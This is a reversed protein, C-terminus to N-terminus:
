RTRRIMLKHTSKENGHFITVFYLGEALHAIDLRNNKIVVPQQQGTLDFLQVDGGTLSSNSNIYLYNGAPNPYIFLQKGPPEEEANGTACLVAEMKMWISDNFGVPVEIGSSEGMRVMILNEGPVINLLQGNKGMASIMDDPAHPHLPGPFVFQLTPIMFTSRGNLWWLYGYSENLSQSPTVMENFYATDSMVPTGNWNGKNLVLLGFRAMSRATSFYVNNYDLPLFLGDMGTVSKVRANHFLNLNQGTANKMVEDLLTYPGNHYSWRTGADAIYQLCTDITCHPDPVADDLGTTMSLQHRITILDEKASPAATWGQGLYTSTTDDLDLFSEQQALGVLFATLTKGASAWYWLSDETFNDFYHEIVMKGDKLVLFAKTHHDDLYTLLEDIEEECWGLSAPSITDWNGSSVPPFYLSQSVAPQINCFLFCLFLCCSAKKM